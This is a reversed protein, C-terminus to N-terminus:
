ARCSARGIQGLELLDRRRDESSSAAGLGHGRVGGVLCVHDLEEVARHRGPAAPTPRLEDHVGRAAILFDIKALKRCFEEFSEPPDSAEAAKERPPFGSPPENREAASRHDEGACGRAKSALGTVCLEGSGLGAQAHDGLAHRAFVPPRSDMHRMDHNVATDIALTQTAAAGFGDALAAHVPQEVNFGNRFRVPLNMTLSAAGPRVFDIQPRELFRESPSDILVQLLGATTTVSDAAAMKITVIPARWDSPRNTEGSLVDVPRPMVVMLKASATPCNM